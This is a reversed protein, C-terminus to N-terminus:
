SAVGANFSKNGQHHRYVWTPSEDARVFRAGAALARTWLDRDEERSLAENYGGLDRWLRTRILAFSPIVPPAQFYWWPDHTGWVLPPPYVVDADQTHALLTELCGPLILDDDALPLLWEGKASVALENMTAACGLRQEDVVVLHEWGNFTQAQVSQECEALMSAREPISPTLVSVVPTGV